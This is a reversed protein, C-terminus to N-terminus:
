SLLTNGVRGMTYYIYEFVRGDIRNTSLLISVALVQLFPAKDFM